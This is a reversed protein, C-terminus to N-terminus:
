SHFISLIIIMCLPLISAFLFFTDASVVLIKRNEVKQALSINFLAHDLGSLHHNTKIGPARLAYADRYIGFLIVGHACAVDWQSSRGFSDRVGGLDWGVIDLDIQIIYETPEGKQYEHLVINRAHAIKGERPMGTSGSNLYLGNKEFRPAVATLITRNRPSKQAWEIFKEQMDISLSDIAFIARSTAFDNALIDIEYLLNELLHKQMTKGVGVITVSSKKMTSLGASSHGFQNPKRSDVRIFEQNYLTDFLANPYVSLFFFIPLATGVLVSVVITVRKWFRWRVKGM